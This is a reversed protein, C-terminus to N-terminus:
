KFRDKIYQQAESISLPTTKSAVRVYFEEQGENKIYVPKKSPKVSILCVDKGDKNIKYLNNWYLCTENGFVNGLYQTLVKQFGDWNNGPVNSYDNDLGLVNGDDDVGILLTGGNESNM